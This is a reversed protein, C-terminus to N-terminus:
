RSEARPHRFSLLTRGVRVIAGNPLRATGGRPVPRWDLHTGNSAYLDALDFGGAVRRIEAHRASAYPDYDLCIAAHADRGITWPGDGALIKTHGVRLGHVVTMRPLDRDAVTDTPPRDAETPAYIAVKEELGTGLAGLRGVMEYVAFLRHPIAVFAMGGDRDVREILGVELLQQLHEHATQRAVSLESAIGELSRATLLFALLRVRKEHALAKFYSALAVPNLAAEGPDESM